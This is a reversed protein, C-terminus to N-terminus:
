RVIKNIAVKGIRNLENKGYSGIFELLSKIKWKRANKNNIIGENKWWNIKKIKIDRLWQNKWNLNIKREM